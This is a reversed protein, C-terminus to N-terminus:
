GPPTTRRSRELYRLAAQPDYGAAAMIGIAVADAEVEVARAMEIAAVTAGRAREAVCPRRAPFSGALSGLPVFVPVGAVTIPERPHGHVADLPMALPAPDVVVPNRADYVLFPYSFRSDGNRQLSAALATIYADLKADSVMPLIASLRAAMERGLQTERELSYFNIGNPATNQGLLPLALLV